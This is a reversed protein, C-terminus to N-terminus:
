IVDIWAMGDPNSSVTSMDMIKKQCEANWKAAIEQLKNEFGQFIESYDDSFEIRSKAKLLSEIEDMDSTGYQSMLSERMIDSFVIVLEKNMCKSVIKRENDRLIESVMESITGISIHFLGGISVKFTDADYEEPVESVDLTKINIYAEFEKDKSESLEHYSRIRKM